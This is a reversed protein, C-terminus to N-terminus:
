IIKQEIVEEKTGDWVFKIKVSEKDPEIVNVFITFKNYGSIESEIEITAFDKLFKLDEKAAKELEIIGASNLAVRHLTREFTSNFQQQEVLYNNAWWDFRQELEDVEPTTSQEYNGGFLALYVQNTLGQVSAIDEAKLNLDGGDGNEYIEIDAIM